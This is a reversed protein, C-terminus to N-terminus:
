LFARFMYPLLLYTFLNFVQANHQDNYLKLYVNIIICPSCAKSNVYNRSLVLITPENGIANITAIIIIIIM